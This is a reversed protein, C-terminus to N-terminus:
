RASARGALSSGLNLLSSTTLAQSGASSAVNQEAAQLFARAADPNTEMLGAAIREIVRPPMGSGENRVKAIAAMAAELPRGRMLSTMVGPDFKAMEAADALNDATKSGGLAAQSTESMRLERQLRQGLRALEGPEAMVPLEARMSASTFPRAANTMTGAASEARAIMPDFYGIRAARQSAADMAGFTSLNDQTRTRPSAMGRGTAIAEIPQSDMRYRDRAAAYRPSSKALKDDLADRIPTLAKVIAGEQNETAKAIQSDINVKARFARGVDTVTLKDSALYSRAQKVAERIPDRISAEGIEIGARAALDTPVAGAGIAVNDAVPSIARNALGVPQSVNIPNIDAMVPQYNRDANAAREATLMKEYQAASLPSGSADTLAGAVRRGQDMQRGILTEVVSQRADNPTRTVTSLMRQGANGMADAVTFVDQGDARAAELAAAVRDPTSGGRRMADGIASRAYEDPRLRAMIPAVLPKSVLAAGQVLPPAAAGVAAGGIASEAASQARGEIGEGSGAGHLGALVAGEKASALMISPLGKGANIAAATPSLGAKALGVGGTVGGALQGAIRYGPRDNADAADIANERQKNAAYRESFSAGDKGTGLIPNLAADGAAALEDALGFSLTDAAGRVFSDVKGLLSDRGDSKPAPKQVRFEGWPDAAASQGPPSARFEAWPDSM